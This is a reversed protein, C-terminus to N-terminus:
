FQLVPRRDLALPLPLSVYSRSGETLTLQMAYGDDTRSVVITATGSAGSSAAPAVTTAAEPGDTRTADQLRIDCLSQRGRYITIHRAGDALPAQVRALYYGPSLLVGPEPAIAETVRVLVGTSAAHERPGVDTIAAETPSPEPQYFPNFRQWFSPKKLPPPPKPLERTQAEAPSAYVDTPWDSVPQAFSASVSFVAIILLPTVITFTHRHAM